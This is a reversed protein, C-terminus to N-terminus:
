ELGLALYRGAMVENEALIRAERGAMRCAVSLAALAHDLEGPHVPAAAFCVEFRAAATGNTGGAAARAMRVAASARLLLTGLAELCRPAAAGDTGLAVTVRVAGAEEAVMAQHLGDGADLGVALGGARAVFPWGAEESLRALDVTAAAGAPRAPTEGALLAAAAELGASVERVRAPLDLAVDVPLEARLRVAPPGPPLVLKVPGPLAANWRLLDWVGAAAGEVGFPPLPADLLLWGGALRATAALDRGNSALLKWVAPEAPEVATFGAGLARGLDAVSVRM